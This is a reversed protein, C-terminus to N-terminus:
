GKDEMERKAKTLIVQMAQTSTGAPAKKGTLKEYEWALDKFSKKAEDLDEDEDDDEMKDEDDEDEDDEDKSEMMEEYKEAIAARVREKLEEELAEKMGLPNKNISEQILQKVSM